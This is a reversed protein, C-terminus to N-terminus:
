PKLLITTTKLAKEIEGAEPWVVAEAKGTLVWWAAVVSEIFNKRYPVPVSMVWEGDAQRPGCLVDRSVMSGITNVGWPRKTM